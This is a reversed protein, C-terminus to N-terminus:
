QSFDGILAAGIIDEAWETYTISNDANIQCVAGDTVAGSLRVFASWTASVVLGM